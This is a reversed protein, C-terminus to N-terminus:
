IADSGGISRDSPYQSRVWAEVESIRYRNVAGMRLVPLGAQQQLEIFRPTVRLYEAIERKTLWREGLEAADVAPYAHLGRRVARPIGWSVREGRRDAARRCPASQARNATATLARM